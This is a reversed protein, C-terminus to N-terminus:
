LAADYQLFWSKENCTNQITELVCVLACVPHDLIDSVNELKCTYVKATCIQVCLMMSSLACHKTILKTKSM